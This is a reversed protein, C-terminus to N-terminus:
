VTNCEHVKMIKNTIDKNMMNCIHWTQVLRGGKYKNLCSNSTYPMFFLLYRRKFSHIYLRDCMKWDNWDNKNYYLFGQLDSVTNNFSKLRCKVNVKTRQLPLKELINIYTILGSLNSYWRVALMLSSDVVCLKTWDTKKM